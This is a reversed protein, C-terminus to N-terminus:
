SGRLPRGLAQEVFDKVDNVEQYARYDSNNWVPLFLNEAQIAQGRELQEIVQAMLAQVSAPLPPLPVAGGLQQILRLINQWTTNAQRSYNDIGLAVNIQALARQATDLASGPDSNAQRVAINYLRGAEAIYPGPDPAWPLPDIEGAILRLYYLAIGLLQNNTSSIGQGSFEQLARVSNLLEALGPEADTFRQQYAEYNAALNGLLTGAALSGGRYSAATFPVDINGAIESILDDVEGNIEGIFGEPDRLQMLQLRILEAEFNAPLRSFVGSLNTEISDAFRNFAVLQGESKAETASALGVRANNLYSSLRNYNADTERLEGQNQLIIGRDIREQLGSIRADKLLEPLKEDEERADQLADNALFWERGDILNLTRSIAENRRQQAIEIELQALRQFLSQDGQTLSEYESVIADSANIRIAELYLDAMLDYYDVALDIDQRQIALLTEDRYDRADSLVLNSEEIRGLADQYNARLDDRERAATSIYEAFSDDPSAIVASQRVFEPAAAIDDRLSQSISIIAEFEQAAADYKALASEPYFLTTGNEDERGALDLDGDDVLAVAEGLRQPANEQELALYQNFYEIALATVQGTFRDTDALHQSEIEEALTRVLEDFASVAEAAQVLEDRYGASFAGLDDLLSLVDRYAALSVQSEQFTQGALAEYRLALEALGVRSDIRREDLYLEAARAVDESQLSSIFAEPDGAPLFEGTEQYALLQLNVQTSSRLAPEGALVGSYSGAEFAQDLISAYRQRVEAFPIYLEEFHRRSLRYAAGAIGEQKFPLPSGAIFQQIYLLHESDRVPANDPLFLALDQRLQVASEATSLIANRSRAYSGLATYMGSLAETSELNLAFEASLNRVAESVLTPDDAFVDRAVAPAQVVAASWSSDETFFEDTRGAIESTLNQVQLFYLESIREDAIFRVFEAYQLRFSSDNESYPASVGIGSLTQYREIASLYEGADILEHALQIIQDRYGRDVALNITSNLEDTQPGVTEPFESNLASLIERAAIQDFVTDPDNDSAKELEVVLNGLLENYRERLRRLEAIRGEADDFYQPHLYMAISLNEIAKGYERAYTLADALLLRIDSLVRDTGRVSFEFQYMAIIMSYDYHDPRATYIEYLSLLYDVATNIEAQATVVLGDRDRLWNNLDATQNEVERTLISQAAQASQEATGESGTGAAAENSQSINEENVQIVRLNGAEEALYRNFYGNLLLRDAIDGLAINQEATFEVFGLLPTADGTPGGTERANFVNLDEIYSTFIGRITGAILQPDSRSIMQQWAREYYIDLAEELLVVAESALAVRRDPETSGRGAESILDRASEVQAEASGGAYLAGGLSLILILVATVRRFFPTVRTLTFVEL